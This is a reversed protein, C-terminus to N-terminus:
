NSYSVPFASGKSLAPIYSVDIRGEAPPKVTWIRRVIVTVERQPYMLIIPNRFSWKIWQGWKLCWLKLESNELPNKEAIFNSPFHQLICKMGKGVNYHVHILHDSLMVSEISMFKLLSQSITFSLSAQFATAWPTASDSMVKTVSCCCCCHVCTLM